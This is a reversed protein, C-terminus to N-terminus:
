TVPDHSVSSQVSYFMIAGKFDLKSTCFNTRLIARADNTKLHWKTDLEIHIFIM